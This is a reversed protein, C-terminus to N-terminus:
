TIQARQNWDVCEQLTIGNGGFIDLASGISLDIKGRSLTRTIKLDEISRGGGAYTTPLNCIAGLLRILQEDMGARLGEADASHILFESCHAELGRITSADIALKTLTQWGDTSVIWGSSTKKCSLDIVIHEKGVASVLQELRSPSFSGQEFLYSTVIVHSAGAELYASANQATVGGGYQLGGPFTKLASLVQEQNNDGLSIIHGGKLGKEKYLAAFYAANNSSVHNEITTDSTLTSGVIQKVLGNHLDICPRFISM